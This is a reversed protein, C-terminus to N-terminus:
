SLGPPAWSLGFPVCSPGFPAWSLGLSAWSAGLLSGLRGRSEGRSGGLPRGLGEWLSKPVRGRLIVLITSVGDCDEAGSGVGVPWYVAGEGLTHLNEIVLGTVAPGHFDGRGVTFNKTRRSHASEFCRKPQTRTMLGLPDLERRAHWLSITGPRARPTRRGGFAATLAVVVARITPHVRKLWM